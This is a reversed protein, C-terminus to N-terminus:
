VLQVNNIQSNASNHSWHLSGNFLRQGHEGFELTLSQNTVDTQTIDTGLLQSLTLSNCLYDTHLVKIVDRVSVIVVEDFVEGPL